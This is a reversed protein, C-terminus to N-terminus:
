KAPRPGVGSLDFSEFGPKLAPSDPRLRFVDKAPDVFRPDAVISGEDMGRAQWEPWKEPGVLVEGGCMQWCLNKRMVVKDDNGKNGPAYFFDPLSAIRFFGNNPDRARQCRRGNLLVALTTFCSRM